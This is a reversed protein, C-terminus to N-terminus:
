KALEEEIEKVDKGSLKQIELITQVVFFLIMLICGLFLGLYNVSVPLKLAPTLNNLNAGIAKWAYKIIIGCFVLCAANDFILISHYVKFPLKRIFFDIRTHQDTSTALAAGLFTIWVMSITSLEEAWTFSSLFVNRKIIQLALIVTLSCIVLACMVRLAYQIWKLIKITKM